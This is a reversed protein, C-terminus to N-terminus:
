VGGMGKGWEYRGREEQVARRDLKGGGRQLHVEEKLGGKKKRRSRGQGKRGEHHLNRSFNLRREKRISHCDKQPGNEKGGAGWKRTQERGGKSNLIKKLTV